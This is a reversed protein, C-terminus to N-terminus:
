RDCTYPPVSYGLRCFCGQEKHWLPGWGERGWGIGLHVESCELERVGAGTHCFDGDHESDECWRPGVDDPSGMGLGVGELPNGKGRTSRGSDSKEGSCLLSICIALTRRRAGDKRDDWDKRGEGVM